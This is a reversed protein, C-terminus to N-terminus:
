VSSIKPTQPLYNTRIFYNLDLKIDNQVNRIKSMVQNNPMCKVKAYGSLIQGTVLLTKM